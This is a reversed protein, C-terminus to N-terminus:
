PRHPKDLQHQQHPRHLQTTSTTPTTPTTPTTLTTSATPTTTYNIHDTHDTHDTDYAHNVCDTSNGHCRCDNVVAVVALLAILPSPLNSLKLNNYIGFLTQRRNQLITILFSKPPSFPYISLIPHPCPQLCVNRAELCWRGRAM